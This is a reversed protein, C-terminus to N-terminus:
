GKFSIIACIELNDLVVTRKANIEVKIYRPGDCLQTKKYWQGNKALLVPKSRGKPMNM